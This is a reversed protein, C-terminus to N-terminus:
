WFFLIGLYESSMKSGVGVHNKRGEIWESGSDQGDCNGAPVSHGLRTVVGPGDVGLARGMGGSRRSGSGGPVLGGAFCLQDGSGGRAPRGAGVGGFDGGSDGHVRHRNSSPTGFSLFINNM